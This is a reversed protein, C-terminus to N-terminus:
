KQDYFKYHVLFRGLQNIGENLGFAMLAIMAIGLYMTPTDLVSSAFLIMYGLGARAAIFEGVIAGILSVGVGLKLGSHIAAGTAPFIVKFFVQRENAGMVRAANILDQEVHVAAGHVAIHLVLFTHVFIIAIKAELGIGFVLVFIPALVITPTAYLMMMFPDLTRSTFKMRSLALGSLIGATSGVIFGLITEQFTVFVNNLLAGTLLTKQLSAFILSPSSFFLKNLFGQGVGWELLLGLLLLLLARALNVALARDSLKVAGIGKKQKPEAEQASEVVGM